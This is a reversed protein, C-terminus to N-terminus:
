SIQAGQPAKIEAVVLYVTLGPSHVANKEKSSQLFPMRSRATGLRKTQKQEEAKVEAKLGSIAPDNVQGLLELM